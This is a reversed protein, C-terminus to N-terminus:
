RRKIYVTVKNVYRYRDPISIFYLLPYRKACATYKHYILLLFHIVIIQCEKRMDHFETSKRLFCVLFILSSFVTLITDTAAM